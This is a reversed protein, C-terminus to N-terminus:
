STLLHRVLSSDLSDMAYLRSLAFVTPDMRVKFALASAVLVLYLHIAAFFNYSLYLLLTNLILLIITFYATLSNIFM